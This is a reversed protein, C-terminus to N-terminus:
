PRPRYGREALSAAAAAKAASMVEALPRTADVDVIPAGSFKLRPTAAIRVSLLDRRHDPKRAHATQLDVNLRIVLDPRFRTMWEYGAQERRALWRVIASGSAAVSLDPGDYAGPVELQPYRDTVIILGQRRLAMMRRFRRRSRLSFVSIVLAAFLGPSRRASLERTRDVKRQIAHDLRPGVVPLRAIVRAVNGAQKGLHAATAPGYSSRLWALSAESVTSKGAGDCGIVAILPALAAHKTSMLVDVGTEQRVHNM